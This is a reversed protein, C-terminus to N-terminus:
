DKIQSVQWHQAANRADFYGTDTEDDPQPIFPAEIETLNNWDKINQFFPLSQMKEFGARQVQDFELMANIAEVASDSLVEGPFTCFNSFFVILFDPNKKFIQFFIYNLFFDFIDYCEGEDEPWEMRMNLINDFVKEPTEDTFPPIGTM